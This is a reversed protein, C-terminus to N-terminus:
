YIYIYILMEGYRWGNESEMHGGNPAKYTKKYKEKVTDCLGCLDFINTGAFCRRCPGSHTCLRACFPFVLVQLPRAWEHVCPVDLSLSLSLSLSRSIYSLFPRSSGQPQLRLFSSSPPAGDVAVLEQEKKDDRSNSKGALL